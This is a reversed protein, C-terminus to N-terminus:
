AFARYDIIEVNLSMLGLHLRADVLLDRDGQREKAVQGPAIGPHVYDHMDPQDLGPHFVVLYDGASAQDVQALLREVPDFGTPNGPPLQSLLPRFVLGEAKALDVMADGLGPLWGVGMHEDLYTPRLGLSRVRNIQATLEAIAEDVLFGRDYLVNPTATFMGDPEVLSPVAKAGAVPGWKVRDWEANLVGHVGV